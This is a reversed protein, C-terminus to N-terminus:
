EGTRRVVEEVRRRCAACFPKVGKTFMLCDLQSRYLGESAYGAGQFAGVVGAARSRALFADVRTAHARSLEEGANKLSDVESAPAGARMREGIRANLEERVKQYALDMADYEAKEWPTPVPTGPAVLERWKLRAPDLLATINAEAPEVGRPYFENYATSSTYYEDALGAFCHGFEHLFVYDSWQNDTTFTCFANYIGGGGYRAQNVMVIIADYPAHAAADRLARNDETLLYRESGLSDFSTGLATRRFVGRSPEDCGSDASPQLVGWVNFRAALTKYPEFGLMIATFRALDARFKAEEAATYGEGLIAVDVCAHPDGGRAAEVVVAGPALPERAIRWDAPDIEVALLERWSGDRQRASLTFRANQRPLPMLTSEHYTRRVGAAAPGTTKYEGFYSDFGRRFLREGSAADFLQACYNGLAAGDDLHLRSGAWAGQVLLRDLTFSEESASGAHFVDVRLTEDRFRRDFSAVGSAVAASAAPSAAVPATSAPAAAAPAASAAPAAAAPASAAPASASIAAAPSAVCAFALAVILARASLAPLAPM